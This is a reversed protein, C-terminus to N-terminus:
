ERSPPSPPAPMEPPTPSRANLAALAAVADEAYPGGVRIADSWFARAGAEDGEALAFRGLWVSAGVYDRPSDSSIARLRQFEVRARAPDQSLWQWAIQGQAVTSAPNTASAWTWFTLPDRYNALVGLQLIGFLGAALVASGRIVASGREAAAGIGLAFGVLPLYLLGRGERVEVPAWGAMPAWAVAIWALPSRTVPFKWATLAALVATVLGPVTSRDAPIPGAHIPITLDLLARGTSAIASLPQWAAVGPSHVVLARLLLAVLAPWLSRLSARWTVRGTHVDAILWLLPGILAVEKTLCAALLLIEGFLGRTLLSAVLLAAALLDSRNTVIGLLESTHPHTLVLLGPLLPHVRIRTALLGTGLAVLAHLGVNVLHGALPSPGFVARELAYLTGLVPRYMGSEIRRGPEALSWFDGTWAVRVTEGFSPRLGEELFLVDDWLYPIPAVRFGALACWIATVVTLAKM